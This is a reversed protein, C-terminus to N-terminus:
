FNEFQITLTPSPFNHSSFSPTTLISIGGYNKIESNVSGISAITGDVYRLTLM